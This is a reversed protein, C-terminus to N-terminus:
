EMVALEYSNIPILICESWLERKADEGTIMYVTGRVPKEGAELERFQYKESYSLGNKDVSKGQFLKADVELAYLTLIEATNAAREDGRVVPTICLPRDDAYQGATQVAELFDHFYYYELTQAHDTFYTHLFCVSLLGYGIVPIWLLKKLKKLSKLSKRIEDLGIGVLLLLSYFLFNIRNVNVWATILGSLNGIVFFCLIAFFEARKVRQEERVCVLLVRILGLAAVPLFGITVAGYGPVTNWPLGDGRLYVSVLSLFNNRLQMGKDDAFFLIDRARISDPFYPMTCFPTRITKWGFANIMMTLYIPWSVLAYIGASILVNKWNLVRQLCLWFAMCALFVPVTYFSVGYTYMCLGFFIMSLYLWVRKGEIGALLLAVGILFVHPFLNCDLAWRSQMFHWPNVSAFLLTLVAGEVGRLRRAIVYLAALGIMSFILVPLRATVASMGFLWFFPVMSYSLLSSMQGYGWATLHVPLFMGFRDTGYKSLAMADVAAMAGDQNMGGPIEGFRWLRISLAFVMLLVVAWGEQLRLKGVKLFGEKRATEETSREQAGFGPKVLLAGMALLFVAYCLANVAEKFDM